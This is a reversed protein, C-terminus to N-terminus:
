KIILELELSELSVKKVKIEEQNLFFVGLQLLEV